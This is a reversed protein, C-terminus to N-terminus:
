RHVTPPRENGKIIGSYLPSHQINERIIRHTEASTASFYSPLRETRLAKTTFSFPQPDPDSDQRELRSFDISSARLRPPTGTKM